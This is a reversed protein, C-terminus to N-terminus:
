QKIVRKSRQGRTVHEAHESHEPIATRPSRSAGAGTAQPSSRSCRAGNYEDRTLMHSIGARLRLHVADCVRDFRAMQGRRIMEVVCKTDLKLKRRGAFTM